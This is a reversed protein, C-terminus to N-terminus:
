GPLTEGPQPKQHKYFMRAVELGIKEALLRRLQLEESPGEFNTGKYPLDVDLMYGPPTISTDVVVKGEPFLRKGTKSDIVKVEVTAKPKFVNVAYHTQFSQVSVYVVQDAGMRKGIKDIPMKDFDKGMEDQLAFIKDSPVLEIHLEHKEPDKIKSNKEKVADVMNKQMHYEVNSTITRGIQSNPIVKFPDDLMVLTTKPEPEYVAPAKDGEIFDAVFALGACGSVSVLVLTTLILCSLKMRQKDM